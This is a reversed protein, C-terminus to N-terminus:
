KSITKNIYKYKRKYLKEFECPEKGLYKIGSQRLAIEFNDFNLNFNKIIEFQGIDKSYIILSKSTYNLPVQGYSMESKSYGFIETFHLRVIKFKLLQFIIIENTKIKVFTFQNALQYYFYTFVLGVFLLLFLMVFKGENNNKFFGIFEFIWELCGLIFIGLISLFILNAFMWLVILFTKVLKM